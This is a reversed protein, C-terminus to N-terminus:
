QIPMETHWRNGPRTPHWAIASHQLFLPGWLQVPNNPAATALYNDLLPFAFHNLLGVAGFLLRHTPCSEIARPLNGPSHTEGPQQCKSAAWPSLLPFTVVSPQQQQAAPNVKCLQDNCPCSHPVSPSVLYWAKKQQLVETSHFLSLFYTRVSSIYKNTRGLRYRLSTQVRHCFSWVIGLLMPLHICSWTAHSLLELGFNPIIYFSLHFHPWAWTQSYSMQYWIFSTAGPHSLAPQVSSARTIHNEHLM